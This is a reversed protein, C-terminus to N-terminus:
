APRENASAQRVRYSAQGTVPAAHTAATQARHRLPTDNRFAIPDTAVIAAYGATATM